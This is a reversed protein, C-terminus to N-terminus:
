EEQTAPTKIRARLNFEYQGKSDTGGKETRSITVDYLLDTKRKYSEEFSNFATIDDAVADISLSDGTITFNKIETNDTTMQLLENYIAAKPSQNEDLTRELIMLKQLEKAEVETQNYSSLIAAKIKLSDAIDNVDRDLKFRAIFVALVIAETGVIIFRGITLAWVYFKEWFTKPSTSERLLNIGSKLPQSKIKPM